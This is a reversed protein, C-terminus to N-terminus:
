SPIPALSNLWSRYGSRGTGAIGTLTSLNSSSAMVDITYTTSAHTATGIALATLTAM